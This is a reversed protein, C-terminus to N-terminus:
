QCRINWLCIRIFVYTPIFIIYVLLKKGLRVCEQAIKRFGPDDLISFSKFYECVWVVSLDKMKIIDKENLKMHKTFGMENL